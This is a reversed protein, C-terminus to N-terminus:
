QWLFSPISSPDLNFWQVFGELVLKYGIVAVFGAGSWFMRRTSRASEHPNDPNQGREAWALVFVVALALAAGWRGYKVLKGFGDNIASDLAGDAALAPAGALVLGTTLAVAWLRRLQNQTWNIM